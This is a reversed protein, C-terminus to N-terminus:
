KTLIHGLNEGGVLHIHLHQVLQGADQGKNIICRYGNQLGALQAIHPIQRFCETLYEVQEAQMSELDAFHSKPVVLIHVKAQPEIDYFAVVKDNEFVKNAPLESGIIKCFICM